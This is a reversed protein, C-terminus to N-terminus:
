EGDTEGSPQVGRLFADLERAVVSHVASTPHLHDMWVKGGRKRVDTAPFGYKEPADLLNGLFVHVDSRQIPRFSRVARENLHQWMMRRHKRFRDGYPLMALANEYGVLAGAFPLVPRSSFVPQDLMRQALPLSSLLIVHTGLASLHSIPGACM